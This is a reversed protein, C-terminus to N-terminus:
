LGTQAISYIPYIISFVLFGVGCGIIVIIVPEILGVLGKIKTDTEKEYYEALKTLIQGVKGTQEGVMMMESVIPPFNRDKQMPVSMPIGREVQAAINKLSETYIRNQIVDATIAITEMIPIGAQLLMSMTRCFRAMYILSYLESMIPIHIKTRDWWSGGERTRILFSFGIIIAILVILELWWYHVTFNSLALVLKTTWPLEIGNEEFVTKLQPVIYLMMLVVILVMTIIIFIPYYLAAKVKSNFDDNQELRTALQELVIDLKGSSEGSRVIAIFVPDFINRHRSLAFALNNGQELDGVITRYANKLVQSRTQASLIKFSQDIALGSALMTALQRALLAKEKVSVRSFIQTSLNLRGEKDWM